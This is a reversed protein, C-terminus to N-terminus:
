KEIFEIFQLLRKLMVAAQARTAHKSPAMTNETVGEIIGAEVAQAVAASAWPSIDFRDSFKNLLSAAQSADNESRAAVSLANAVMVAMQERTIESNPAFRDSSVGKVLGANVGAEIASAYWDDRGIDRFTLKGVTGEMRIGLARVLLATFEARTIRSDPAFLTASVGQVILKSALLEADRQAWHGALDAFSKNGAEMVAYVSNHPVKMSMEQPGERGTARVAPVFSFTQGVPDYVVAILHTDPASEGLVITRVMYTGGFDKIEITQGGASVALTYAVAQGVLKLGQKGAAQGLQEKAAGTVQEMVVNVQLEKPEVGLQDALGKLDLVNVQLQFSSGNLRVEFAADPFTEMVSGLSSAPFQVRVAEESDNIRITVLPSSATKFLELLQQVVDDSVAVTEIVTGDDRTEKVTSSPDIVIVISGDPAKTVTPPKDPQPKVSGDDTDKPPSTRVINKIEIEEVAENGAADSAYVTYKGNSTVKFENTDLIDTGATGDAFDDAGRSGPMWNLKALSNSAGTITAAVQVTVEGATVATPSHSLTIAPATTVINAIDIEEVAENGAADRAYVTYTGNSTVQFENADLIDTGATGDAFDDAGRSGPMWNLKALSNSAGTATAAVQVTVPGKTVADPDYSLLIQPAESIINSVVITEVTRNGVEDEAYVTYTGNEEVEFFGDVLLTGGNDFYTETRLGDAWRVEAIESGTGDTAVTLKVKERTLTGSDPNQTIVITPAKADIKIGATGTSPLGLPAAVGSATIAAHGPLEIAAGVEIGDPDVLGEEVEYEFILKDPEGDPQGSFDAYLTESSAGAGIAIPIRPKGTVDVNGGYTAVFVLKDRTGYYGDPPVEVDVLGPAPVQITLKYKGQAFGHIDTTVVEIVNDGPTVPVTVSVDEAGEIAVKTDSNVPSASVEVATIFADSVVTYAGQGPEFAGPNWDLVDEAAEVHLSNLKVSDFSSPFMPYTTGDIMAWTTAFDWGAAQFTSKAQMGATMKGIAGNGGGSAAQGSIATDWFSRIVDDNEGYGVLGGAANNGAVAAASYSETVTGSSISGVLGGAREGTSTIKGTVYSRTITGGNIEGALGGVQSSGTVDIHALGLQNVTGALVAFLGVNNEGSRNITLNNIVHKNGEFIGTFPNAEDGIPIWGGGLHYGGGGVSLYDTLDIDNMLQYADDLEYNGTGIAGLQEATTLSHPYDDSGDERVVALTYGVVFPNALVGPAPLLGATSVEIDITNEGENLSVTQTASGGNVSSVSSGRALASVEISAVANPVTATYAFRDAQFMPEIVIPKSGDKAGLADLFLRNFTTRHMPYTVGDIIGWTGAGDGSFGWGSFFDSDTMQATALPSGVASNASLENNYYSSTVSVFGDAKGVLGGISSEGNVTVAAYSYRVAGNVAYGALGGVNDGGSISGTVYVNEFATFRSDGVLGGIYDGNAANISVHILGINKFTARVSGGFLGRVSTGVGKTDITLNSITHGKGDLTGTFPNAFSAIPDWSAIGGLDLDAGLEFYKNLNGAEGMERLQAVSTIVCAEDVSGGCGESSFDAFVRNREGIPLISVWLIVTALMTRWIRKNCNTV